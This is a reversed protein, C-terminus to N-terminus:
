KNREKIMLDALTYSCEAIEDFTHTQLLQQMALGAFWDRLTRVEKYSEKYGENFAEIRDRTYSELFYEYLGNYFNRTDLNVNRAEHEIKYIRDMFDRKSINEM